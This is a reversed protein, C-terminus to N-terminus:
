TLQLPETVCTADEAGDTALVQTASLGDYSVTLTYDDGRPVWIGIFGNDFSRVAEDVVVDGTADNTLTVDVDVNRLEGVCTTLSHFHCPHTQTIFPAFSVYFEDEPMPLSVENEPLETLILEDPRISAFLETSRDMLPTADLKDIIGRADLGELDHAALIAQTDADPTFDSDPSESQCGALLAASSVVVAALLSTIGRRTRLINM